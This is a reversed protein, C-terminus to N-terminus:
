GEDKQNLDIGHFKYGSDPGSLPQVVESLLFDGKKIWSKLLEAIERSKKYSTLPATPVERGNVTIKGSKLEQYTVEGLPEGEGQPYDRGYDVVKTVIDKDGLGTTRALDEDLIPIPIGLGVALSTGYGRYSAGRIFDTSMQKLDGCVAITGAPARPVGHENRPVGPSHQTGQWYVYGVTGGLFIRTGIGITRYTPDKLLPSLQGATAYNANAMRPRLVGMYTYITRESGVNVACNYNQYGNRPNVLVAENLGQLTIYGRIEKRPYCDTGYATARLEVERGAVLDEIVHGGGYRFPGPFVSNLPDDEATEAAGIYCDVAALGGYAPVNNLWIRQMKMRPQTHGFNLFAGSSCMAGFTGTTVVDVNRAAEATGKRSVIGVMEEATVVTVHGKRIKENIEAITKAM